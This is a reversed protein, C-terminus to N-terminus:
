DYLNTTNSIVFDGTGTTAFGGSGSSITFQLTKGSMSAPALVSPALTSNSSGCGVIVLSLLIAAFINLIKM